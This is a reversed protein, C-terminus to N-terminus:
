SFFRKIYNNQKIHCFILKHYFIINQMLLAMSHLCHHNNEFYGALHDSSPVRVEWNNSQQETIRENFKWQLHIETFHSKNKCVSFHVFNMVIGIIFMVLLKILMCKGFLRFSYHMYSIYPMWHDLLRLGKYVHHGYVTYFYITVCYITYNGPPFTQLDNQTYTTNKGTLTLHTPSLYYVCNPCYLIM